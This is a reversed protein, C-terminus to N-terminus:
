NGTINQIFGTLRKGLVANDYCQEVLKRANLGLQNLLQPDQKLRLIEEAFEQPTDAILINKGHTYEIGEAGVATSIIAKGAAMGEIIKVRMGGGSLLPVMMVAKDKMYKKSDSIQGEVKLLDDHRDFIREPMDKGALYIRIQPDKNRIIPYVKELFWDVAELNPMWNMSGLHFLSFEGVPHIEYDSVNVGIPITLKPVTSGLREYHLEDVPTIPLIANFSNLMSLEYQKLRNALLNLYWKKLPNTCAAALREWIVFEINHSRLITKAKSYHKVIGHYPSM